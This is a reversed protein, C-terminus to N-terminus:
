KEIYDGHRNNVKQIRTNLKRIGADSWEGAVVRLWSVVAEQVEEDFQFKQGGLHKKLAPFLYYDSPVVDPNYPPHDIIDWGFKEILATTQHSM